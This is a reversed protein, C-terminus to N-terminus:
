APVAAALAKLDFGAAEAEGFGLPRPKALIRRVLMNDAPRNVSEAGVFLGDRFALLSLRREERSGIEVLRDTQAVLGAMQLKHSGQDSWFWPVARYPQSRGALRAAVSRGQDIANQVSEVRIRAGSFSSPHSACDGIASIALDQTQLLEDVVIGNDVALGAQAALDDNAVGGIGMLVLDAPLLRGDDLRGGTVKGADDEIAALRAGFHMAIGAEAHWQRFLESMTPTVSRAMPRDAAEIVSVALGAKAAVSAFELGIFGAGVVVASRAQGIRRALAAADAMSRLYMVGDLAAGPGSWLRARSGTALVLHGYGVRRGDSLALEQRVRDITTARADCLVEVRLEDLLSRPRLVLSEASITGQLYGKSLPPRQYPLTPEDGVILISGGFAEERLSLAAQLGAQGAGLILVDARSGAAIKALESM